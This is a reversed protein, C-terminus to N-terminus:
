EREFTSPFTLRNRPSQGPTFTGHFTRQAISAQLLELMGRALAELGLAPVQDADQSLTAAMYCVRAGSTGIVLALRM